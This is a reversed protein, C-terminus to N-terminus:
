QSNSRQTDALESELRESKALETTIADTDQGLLPAPRLTAQSRSYLTLAAPRPYDEIVPHWGTTVVDLERGVAGLLMTLEVSQLSVTACTVGRDGLRRQWEESSAGAFARELELESAETSLDIKMVDALAKQEEHSNAVLMSWGESTAYLRHFPGWGFLQSDPAPTPDGHGAVTWDALAHSMTSLMSARLTNGGGFRKQGIVGLLMATGVGLAAFGDANGQGMAASSLKVAMRKTKTPDLHPGDAVAAVGGANRVAMGSAAGITPAFAPRHGSPPGDGYGPSSVYVLEPNIELLDQATLHLREAVGARFSQIVVDASRVLQALLEQGAGTTLDAVVSEKGHLVKIGGVEPFGVIGRIPDGEATEVKIVRAGQEALLTAGYPAAYFTGLELVTVGHLAPRGDADELFGSRLFGSREESVSAWPSGNHEGLGPSQEVIFPSWAESHVLRGPMKVGDLSEVIRRDALLQPHELANGANRFEEAWVDPDQDFLASWESHSRSRVASLLADWFAVRVSSDESMRAAQVADSSPDMGCSRLFANWLRETTQSFQLWKGDKTLAVLLSFFLPSNPILTEPDCPPQMEFASEHRRALLHILWNWTDFALFGQALSTSVRQGRGSRERELLAGLAGHLALHAASISCFPTSVFSPGLRTSLNAFSTSGGIVAMVVSEWGKLHSYPSDDGFGSIRVQILRGNRQELVAAGLGLRAAVGTGWGDVFIDASDILLRATEQGGDTSLDLSTSRQGRSWYTWASHSRLKSGTPPELLVVEAGHDALVQGVVAAPLANASSVVKVGSLPLPSHNSLATV